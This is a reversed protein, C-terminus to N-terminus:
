DYYFHRNFKKKNLISKTFFVFHVFYITSFFLFVLVKFVDNKNLIEIFNFNEKWGKPKLLYDISLHGHVSLFRKFKEFILIGLNDKIHKAIKKSCYKSKYLFGIDNFAGNNLLPHNLFKIKENVLYGSDNM